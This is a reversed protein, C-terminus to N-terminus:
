QINSKNEKILVILLVNHLENYKCCKELIVVNNSMLDDLMNSVDLYTIDGIMAKVYLFDIEDLEFNENLYDLVKQEIEKSTTVDPDFSNLVQQFIVDIKESFKEHSYSVSM